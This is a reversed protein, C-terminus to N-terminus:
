STRCGCSLVSTSRTRSARCLPSALERDDASRGALLKFLPDYRLVDHDNQDAYNALIGYVRMRVMETFSHTSAARPDHLAEAFQATLGLKEDLQRIPLLRADSTLQAKQPKVVVPKRGFFDFSAQWDSQLSM